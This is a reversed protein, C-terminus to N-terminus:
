VIKTIVEVALAGVEVVKRNVGDGCHNSRATSVYAPRSYGAYRATLRVGCNVLVPSLFVGVLKSTGTGKGFHAEDATRQASSTKCSPVTNPGVLSFTMAYGYRMGHLRLGRDGLRFLTSM